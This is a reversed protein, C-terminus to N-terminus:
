LQWMVQTAGAPFRVDLFINLIIGFANFMDGNFQSLIWKVQRLL